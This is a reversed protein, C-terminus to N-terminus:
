LKRISPTINEANITKHCRPVCQPWTDKESRHTTRTEPSHRKLKGANKLFVKKVRQREKKMKKSEKQTQNRQSKAKREVRKADSKESNV